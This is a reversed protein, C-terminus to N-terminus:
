KSVGDFFNQRKLVGIKKFRKMDYKAMKNVIEKEKPYFIMDKNKFTENELVYAFLKRQAEEKRRSRDLKAKEEQSATGSEVVKKAKELEENQIDWSLLIDAVFDQLQEASSLRCKHEITENLFYILDDNENAYTENALEIFFEAGEGKLIDVYNQFANVNGVFYETYDLSDQVDKQKNKELLKEFSVDGLKIAQRIMRNYFDSCFVLGALRADEEHLQSADQGANITYAYYGTDKITKSVFKAFKSNKLRKKKCFKEISDVYKDIIMDDEFLEIYDEQLGFKMDKLNEKGFNTILDESKSRYQLFHRYEHGLSNILDGFKRKGHAVESIDMRDMYITKMEESYLAQSVNGDFQVSIFCVDFHPLAKKNPYNFYNTDFIKYLFSIIDKELVSMDVEDDIEKKPIQKLIKRFSLYMDKSIEQAM